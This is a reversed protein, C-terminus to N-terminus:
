FATFNIDTAYYGKLQEVLRDRENTLEAIRLQLWMPGATSVSQAMGDLSVSQTNMPFIAPAMQSLFKIAALIGILDNVVDPVKDRDFGAWYIIRWMNPWNKLGGLVISRYASSALFNVDANIISGSNPVIRVLGTDGLLSVWSTPYDVEQSNGFDALVDNRGPWLAKLAEVKIVPFRTLRKTGFSLDDARIFDFRDEIKVPNVPVRVSSEFDSVGKRIFQKITEDTVEEGTLAARLPIGFLYEAKFRQVDILPGYRDFGPEQEGLNFNTGAGSTIPNDNGNFVM